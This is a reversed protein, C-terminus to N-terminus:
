KLEGRLKRQYNVKSRAKEEVRHERYYKRKSERVKEINALRYKKVRGLVRIRNKKYYRADADRQQEKTRTM